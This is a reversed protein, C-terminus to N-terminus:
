PRSLIRRGSLELFMVYVLWRRRFLRDRLM